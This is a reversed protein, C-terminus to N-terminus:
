QQSWARLTSHRHELDERAESVAFPDIAQNAHAVALATGTWSRLFGEVSWIASGDSPDGVMPREGSTGIFLVFHGDGEDLHVILPGYREAAGILAEYSLSFGQSFFGLSQLLHALDSYSIEGEREGKGGSDLAGMLQIEDIDIGWYISALSSVASVGCSNDYGQEGIWLFRLEEFSVMTPVGIGLCLGIVSVM